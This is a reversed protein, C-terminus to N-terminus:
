VNLMESSGHDGAVQATDDIRELELLELVLSLDPNREDFPKSPLVM